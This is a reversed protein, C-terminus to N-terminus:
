YLRFFINTNVLNENLAVLEDYNGEDDYYRVSLNEKKIDGKVLMLNLYNLVYPSNTRFESEGISFYQDLFYEVQEHPVADDWLKIGPKNNNYGCNFIIM